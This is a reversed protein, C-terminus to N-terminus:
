CTIWNIGFRCPRTRLSGVLSWNGLIGLFRILSSVLLLRDWRGGSLDGLHYTINWNVTSNNLENSTRLLSHKPNNSLSSCSNWLFIQSMEISLSFRHIISQFVADPVFWAITLNGLPGNMVVHKRLVVVECAIRLVRQVITLRTSPTASSNSAASYCFSKELQILASMKKEETPWRGLSWVCKSCLCPNGCACGVCPWGICPRFPVIM